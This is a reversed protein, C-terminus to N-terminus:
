SVGAPPAATGFLRDGADGLGPRIFKNHDLQRDLLAVHIPVGPHHDLMRRVGEPAAILGVFVIRPAGWAKLVATADAASGGTALMPDLLIVVDDPCTAPLRNYYSVPRHTVEDRYMGLHWVHPSPLISLAAEVMGLGARLIPVLGLSADIEFGDAPELPTLFRVARLPLDATAEYLLLATLEAVLSRFLKADTQRDALLRIKHRILPHGSVRLNPLLPHPASPLWM